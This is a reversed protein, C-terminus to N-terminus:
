TVTKIMKAGLPKSICPIIFGGCKYISIFPNELETECISVNILHFESLIM